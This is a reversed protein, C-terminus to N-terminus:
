AALIKNEEEMAFIKWWFRAVIDMDFNGMDKDEDLDLDFNDM